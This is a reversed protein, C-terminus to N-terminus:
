HSMGMFNNTIHVLQTDLSLPAEKTKTKM